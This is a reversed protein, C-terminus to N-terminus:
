FSDALRSLILRAEAEGLALSPRVRVSRPGCGLLLLGNEWARSLM